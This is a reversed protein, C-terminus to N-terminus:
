ETKTDSRSISSSSTGSAGEFDTGSNQVLEPSVSSQNVNAINFGQYKAITESKGQSIDFMDKIYTNIDGFKRQLDVPLNFFDEKVGNVLALAEDYTQPTIFSDNYVPQRVAPLDQIKGAEYQEIISRIECEEALQQNCVEEHGTFDTGLDIPKSNYRNFVKVM